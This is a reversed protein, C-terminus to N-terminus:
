RHVYPISNSKARCCGEDVASVELGADGAFCISCDIASFRTKRSVRMTDFFTLLVSFKLSCQTQM